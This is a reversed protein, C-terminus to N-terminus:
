ENGRKKKRSKKKKVRKKASEKARRARAKANSAIKKHRLHEALEEPNEFHVDWVSEPSQWECASPDYEACTQPRTEYIGCKLDATLYTCRTAINLYWRGADKYISIGEHALYWRWDDWERATDPADIPVGIYKCCAGKCLKTCQTLWDPRGDAFRPTKAPVKDEKIPSLTPMDTPMRKGVAPNTDAM